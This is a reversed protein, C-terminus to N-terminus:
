TLWGHILGSAYAGIMAGLVYLVQTLAFVLIFLGITKLWYRTNNKDQPDQEFWVLSYFATLIPVAFCFWGIPTVLTVITGIPVQQFLSAIVSLEQLCVYLGNLVLIGGGVYRLWAPIIPRSEEQHSTHQPHSNM